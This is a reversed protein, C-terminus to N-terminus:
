QDAESLASFVSIPKEFLILIGHQNGPTTDPPALHIEFDFGADSSSRIYGAYHEEIQDSLVANDCRSRIPVGGIEVVVASQRLKTTAGSM